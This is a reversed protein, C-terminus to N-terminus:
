IGYISKVANYNQLIESPSLARNYIRMQYYVPLNAPVSSNMKDQAGTGANTHRAGFYFNNSTFLTQNAVTSTTGLQSGNLYLSNSTGNIVFIYQRISNSATITSSAPSNPKGWNITTAGPMYAFYGSGTNYTENGWITGWYSTPNFSAIVEVTATSSAINYPLSIYDTGGYTSNNLKIGGGNNSVYSTSGNLTANYGNGTVDTWTTGSSPASLLNVQLGTTVIQVGPIDPYFQLGSGLTIGNGIQM